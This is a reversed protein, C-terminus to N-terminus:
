GIGEKRMEAEGREFGTCGSLDTSGGHVFGYARHHPLPPAALSGGIGIRVVSRGMFLKFLGSWLCRPQAGSLTQPGFRQERSPSDVTKSILLPSRM